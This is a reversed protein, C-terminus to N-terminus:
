KNMGEERRRVDAARKRERGGNQYRIRDAASQCVYCRRFFGRAKNWTMKVDFLHGRKCHTMLAAQTPAGNGLRPELHHPNVCDVRQCRHYLHFGIPIRGKYKQYIRRHALNGDSDKIIVIGYGDANKQGRWIWCGSKPEVDYPIHVRKQHRTLFLKPDGRRLGKKPFDLKYFGSKKGCGCQCYGLPHNVLTFVKSLMKEDPTFGNGDSVLTAVKERVGASQDTIMSHM